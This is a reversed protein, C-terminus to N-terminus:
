LIENQGKFIYSNFSDQGGDLSKLNTRNAMLPLESGRVPDDSTVQVSYEDGEPSIQGSVKEKGKDLRGVSNTYVPPPVPPTHRRAIVHPVQLPTVDSARGIKVFQSGPHIVIM